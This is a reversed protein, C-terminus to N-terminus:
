SHEIVPSRKETQPLFIAPGGFRAQQREKVSQPQGSVELQRSSRNTNCVLQLAHRLEDARRGGPVGLSRGLKRSPYGCAAETDGCLQDFLIWNGCVHDWQVAGSFYITGSSLTITTCSSAGQHCDSIVYTGYSNRGSRRRTRLRGIEL